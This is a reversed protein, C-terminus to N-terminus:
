RRRKCSSTRVTSGAGTFKMNRGDWRGQEVCFVAVKQWKDDNPVVTDAQIIRDQKGGLIMEGGLLFVPHKGKNKVEVESVQAEDAQGSLERVEFTEEGLGSELLTYRQFPGTSKTHVPVLTINQYTVPDGYEVAQMGQLSGLLLLSLVAHVM